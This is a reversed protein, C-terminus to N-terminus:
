NEYDKLIRRLQTANKKAFSFIYDFDAGSTIMDAGLDLWKRQEAEDISTMAMGIYKGNAKLISVAENILAMNEDCYVDSLRGISGSMDFPGFIFGDIYPNKIIEPLNKVATISEIQIFRCLNNEQDAIYEAIPLDGYRVARLPGSGRTGLPPYLTSKMCKDAYEATHVNPFIIGDPGMELVRKTHNYDDNSVRVIVPRKHAKLITICNLLKGYDIASHETDLWIFDFDLMGFIDAVYNEGMCLQTGFTKKGAKIKEKLANM